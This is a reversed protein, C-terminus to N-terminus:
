AILMRGLGVADVIFHRVDAFLTALELSLVFALPYFAVPYSYAFGVVRDPVTTRAILARLILMLVIGLIAGAVVDSPFHFGLYIRPVCIVVATWLGAAIGLWRSRSWLPVCLAFFLMAHDSPFSSFTNLTEPDVTLPVHLGLDRTHLPRQHFPLGVQFARSVVATIVAAILAVVVDRRHAEKRDARHDFWLWWYLALFVGGKLLDSDALDYILRDVVGSRGAPHNIWLLLSSDLDGITAM